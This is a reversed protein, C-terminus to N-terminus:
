STPLQTRGLLDTPNLAICVDLCLVLNNQCKSSTSGHSLCGYVTLNCATLLFQVPALLRMIAGTVGSHFFILSILVLATVTLRDM